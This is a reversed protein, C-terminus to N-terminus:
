INQRIRSRHLDNMMSQLNQPSPADKEVANPRTGCLDDGCGRLTGTLTNIRSIANSIQDNLRPSTPATKSNASGISQSTYEMTGEKYGTLRGGFHPESM